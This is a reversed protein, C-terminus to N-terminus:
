ESLDGRIERLTPVAIDVLGKQRYLEDRAQESRARVRHAIEPDIPMGSAVAAFVAELDTRALPITSNTKPTNM